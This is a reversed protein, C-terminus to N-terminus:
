EKPKNKSGPPRGRKRVGSQERVPMSPQAEATPVAIVVAERPLPENEQDACTKHALYAQRPIGRFVHAVPTMQYIQKGCAGCPGLSTAKMEGM